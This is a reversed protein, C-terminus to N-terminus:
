GALERPLGPMPRVEAKGVAKIRAEIVDLIDAARPFERRLWTARLFLHHERFIAPENDFSACLMVSRENGAVAAPVWIQGAHDLGATRQWREGKLRKKPQVTFWEIDFTQM